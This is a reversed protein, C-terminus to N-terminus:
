NFLKKYAEEKLLLNCSEDIDQDDILNDRLAANKCSRSCFYMNKKTVCESDGCGLVAYPTPQLKIKTPEDTSFLRLHAQHTLALNSEQYNIDLQDNIFKNQIAANKCSRSCFNHNTKNVCNRSGCGISMKYTEILSM